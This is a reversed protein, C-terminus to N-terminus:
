IVNANGRRPAVVGVQWNPRFVVTLDATELIM